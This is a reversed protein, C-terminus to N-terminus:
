QVIVRGNLPQLPRNNSHELAQKFTELQKESLNVTNKMVLWRLGETCPPTTLSGSFRYYHLDAPFLPRLDFRKDISVEHNKEKPLRALLPSLATNEPGVEFIVALVAIDGDESAHVFHAELPFSKGNIRNESPTHFHYQRLIFTTDDLRFEDEDGATVQLTHGNNVLKEAATHFDLILPPLTADFPHRIDIPSQYKGTKCTSFTDSLEGWNDPGGKGEYAWHPTSEAFASVSLVFLSATLVRKM